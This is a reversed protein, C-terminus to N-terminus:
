YTRCVDRCKMVVAHCSIVESSKRVSPCSLRTIVVADPLDWPAAARCRKAPRRYVLRLPDIDAAISCIPLFDSGSMLTIVGVSVPIPTVTKSSDPIRPAGLDNAGADAQMARGDVSVPRAVVEIENIDGFNPVIGPASITHSYVGPNLGVRTGGGPATTGRSKLEKYKPSRPVAPIPLFGAGNIGMHTAMPCALRRPNVSLVDARALASKRFTAPRSRRSAPIPPVGMRPEFSSSGRPITLNKLRRM